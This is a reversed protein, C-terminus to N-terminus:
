LLGPPGIHRAVFAAVRREFEAATGMGRREYLLVGAHPPRAVRTPDVDQLGFRGDRLLRWALAPWLGLFSRWQSRYRLCARLWRLREGVRLVRGQVVGNRALPSAVRFCPGPLGEGHYLAYQRVPVDWASALALGLLHAADHDPHGGEWAPVLLGRPRDDRAALCAFAEELRDALGGDAFGQARGLFEIADAAIGIGALVARTEAERPLPSQGGFAGDTLVVFRVAEGAAVTDALWPLLAFEDDPHPLLVWHAADSRM